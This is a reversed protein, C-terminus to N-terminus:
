TIRVSASSWRSSGLHRAVLISNKLKGARIALDYGEEILDVFRNSIDM